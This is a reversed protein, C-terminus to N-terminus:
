AQILKNLYESFISELRITKDVLTRKVGSVAPLILTLQNSLNKKDKQIADWFLNYPIDVKNFYMWNLSLYKRYEEYMDNSILGLERAVYNAFDMGITVAIGHPVKYNTASEIAHGFTHGYNMVLRENTDFEDIEIIKKKILLSQMISSEIEKLELKTLNLQKSLLSFAEKGEIIHVKIIEGVGSRIEEETLTKLFNIDIFIRQPPNFNGVINKYGQMNISSKSGICSDAQALLTTPIFEWPIGRFLISSIFCSIDQTVGGGIACLTHNRKIGKQLLEVMYMDLREFAKNKELADIFVVKDLNLSSLLYKYLDFVKRDILYYQSDHFAKTIENSFHVIYPGKHSNIEIDKFM